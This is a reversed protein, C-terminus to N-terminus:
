PILRSSPVPEATARDYDGGYRVKVVDFPSSDDEYGASFLDAFRQRYEDGQDSTDWGEKSGDPLFVLHLYDNVVSTVPGVVLPRWEEPLSQRFAEVDPMDAHGSVTVMIADHAIYGMGDDERLVTWLKLAAPAARM